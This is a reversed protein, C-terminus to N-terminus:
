YVNIADWWLLLKLLLPDSSFNGNEVGALRHLLPLWVLCAPGPDSMMTDMFDNVTVKQNQFVTCYHQHSLNNFKPHWFCVFLIFSVPAHLFHKGWCINKSVPWPFLPFITIWFSCCPTGASRAPLRWIAVDCTPWKRWLNTLIYRYFFNLSEIAKCCPLLIIIFSQSYSVSM